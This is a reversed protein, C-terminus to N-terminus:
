TIQEARSVHWPYPDVFQSWDQKMEEDTLLCGDLERTIREKDLEIGIFVVETKRDGWIDDWDSLTDPNMQKYYVQEAKPLSAVWYAVPELTAQPGAQSLM